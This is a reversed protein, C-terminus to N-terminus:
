RPGIFSPLSCTLLKNAHVLSYTSLADQKGEATSSSDSQPKNLLRMIQCAEFYRTLSTPGVASWQDIVVEKHTCSATAQGVRLEQVVLKFVPKLQVECDLTRQDPSINCTACACDVSAQSAMYDLSEKPLSRATAAAPLLKLSKLAVMWKAKLAAQEAVAAM